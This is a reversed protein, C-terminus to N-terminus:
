NTRIRVENGNNDVLKMEGPVCMIGSPIQYYGKEDMQYEKGDIIWVADNPVGHELHNRTNIAAIMSEAEYEAYLEGSNTFYYTNKFSGEIGIEIRGPEFGLHELLNKVDEKSHFLYAGLPSKYEILSGLIDASKSEEITQSQNNLVSDVISYAGLVKGSTYMKKDGNVDTFQYYKNQSLILKNDNVKLDSVNDYDITTAVHEALITSGDPLTFIQNQPDYLVTGDAFDIKERNNIKEEESVSNKLLHMGENSFDAIDRKYVSNAQSSKAGENRVSSISTNLNNLYNLTKTNINM